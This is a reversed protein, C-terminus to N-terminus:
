EESPQIKGPRFWAVPRKDRPVMGNQQFAPCGIAMGFGVKWPHELKIRNKLEPILNIFYSLGSWCAGLGLSNAVLCMNQGAIGANTFLGSPAREDVLILILAPAGLFVPLFGEVVNSITGVFRPDFLGPGPGSGSEVMQALMPLAQDNRYAAQLKKMEDRIAKAFEDLMARDIIVMFRWPQCNVGSPAFRGAELVRRILTEPVPDTKFNRVSRRELVVREVENFQDPGGEANRPEAPMQALPLPTETRFFGDAVHYRQAATIAKSECVVTCNHCSTCGREPNFHALEDDRIEWLKRPCIKACLGCGDCLAPDAEMRGWVVGTPRFLEKIRDKDM